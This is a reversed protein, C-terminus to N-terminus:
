LKEACISALKSREGKTLKIHGTIMEGKLKEIANTLGNTTSTLHMADIQDYDGNLIIKTNEGARTLITKIELATLNQAETVIILSNAISRGRIFTIAEMEITGDELYNELAKNDNMLFELNDKIPSLWPMLKEQATGPLFGIAQNGINQVPKMVIMKKYTPEKKDDHNLILELGAALCLLDKGSGAIGTLTVLNINPDMLLNLAFNQEKNKPKIGWVGEGKLYDKVKMLKQEYSVFRALATKKDNSNSILMLFQNPNLTIDKPSLIVEGGAYFKDIVQEDVLHTAFGTYIEDVNDVAQNEQYDETLLGLADCKVRMNIDRSVVIVKNKPNLAKQTLAVAIILNDPVSLDLDEPVYIKEYTAIKLTGKGKGLKVGAQLSGKERLEDLKRITQRANLGVTDQRKKHKDVEELIKMSLIIDNNGFNDLATHESFLVNTDLLYIKKM